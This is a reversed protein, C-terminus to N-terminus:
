DSLKKYDKFGKKMGSLRTSYLKHNNDIISYIKFKLLVSSYKLLATTKFGYIKLSKKIVAGYGVTYKFEKDLNVDHPNYLHYVKLDNYYYINKNKSILNLTYDIDEGGFWKAGLGLDEDFKQISERRIFIGVSTTYKFANFSNIKVIPKKSEISSYPLNNIPDYVGTCIATIDKHNEFIDNVKELFEKNYWCDDDPFAILDGNIYDIGLNRAKSLSMRSAKVYKIEFLNEYKTCLEKIVELDSQDIVILQFNNFTSDKLTTFLTEMEKVRNYTTVILSIKM